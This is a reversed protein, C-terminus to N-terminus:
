NSSLERVCHPAQDVAAKMELMQDWRAYQDKLKQATEMPVFPEERREGKLWFRYWDVNGQLSIMRESPRSLAHGGDPFMLMEVPRYQRRLLAYVDSYNKAYLGYSEIRM